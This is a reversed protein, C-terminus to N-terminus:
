SLPSFDPGKLPNNADEESVAITGLFSNLYGVDQQLFIVFVSWFIDESSFIKEVLFINKRHTSSFNIKDWESLFEQGELEWYKDFFSKAFTSLLYSTIFLKSGKLEMLFYNVLVCVSSHWFEARLPLFAIKLLSSYRYNRPWLNETCLQTQYRGAVCHDLDTCLFQLPNSFLWSLIGRSRTEESKLCFTYCRQLSPSLNNTTAWNVFSLKLQNIMFWKSHLHNKELNLVIELRQWELPPFFVNEILLSIFYYFASM